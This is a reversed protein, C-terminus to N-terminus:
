NKDEGASNTQLITLDPAWSVLLPRNRFQKILCALFIIGSTYEDPLSVCNLFFSTIVYTTQIEQYEYHVLHGLIQM